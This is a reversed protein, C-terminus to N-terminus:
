KMIVKRGNVIYLGKAPQTVHRGQLDYVKNNLSQDVNLNKIGTTEEDAFVMVMRAAAADYTTQLYARNTAVTQGAAKYFGIGSVNNLIYNIKGDGGDTEVAAGTGVHLDNDGVADTSAAVPINETDGGAKYLLVPTNAPVKNIQTLAVIGTSTNVKATYAKIGTSTFDLDYSPVYTAFGASTVAVPVTFTVKYGAIYRDDGSGTLYVTGASPIYVVHDVDADSITGYSDDGAANGVSIPRSKNTTQAYFTIACAGGVKFALVDQSSSKVRLSNYYNNGDITSSGKNTAVNNGKPSYIRSEDYLYGSAFGVAGNGTHNDAIFTYNSSITVLNGADGSVGQAIVTLKLVDSYDDGSNNHAKVKFYSIGTSATSPQYTTNTAGDIAEENTGDADCTYWQLTPAPTGADVTATLTVTTGARVISPSIVASVEPAAGTVVEITALDSTTSGNDDTVVVYYYTTGVTATSIKAAALTASTAGDIASDNEPDATGTTNSYWQYSLKGASATAAVTIAAPTADVAYIASAPQTTISPADAAAATFWIGHFACDNAGDDAENVGTIDIEYSKSPVLNIDIVQSVSQASATGYTITASSADSPTATVKVRRVSSGSSAGYVRIATVNTVYFKIEKKTNGSKVIKSAVSTESEYAEGTQPNITAGKSTFNDSTTSIWGESIATSLDSYSTPFVKTDSAINKYTPDGWASSVGGLLCVAMLLTKLLTSKKM